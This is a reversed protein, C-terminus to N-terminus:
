KKTDRITHYQLTFDKEIKLKGSLMCCIAVAVLMANAFHRPERYVSRETKTHRWHKKCQSKIQLKAVSLFANAVNVALDFSKAEIKRWKALAGSTLQLHALM